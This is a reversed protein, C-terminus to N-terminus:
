RLDIRSNLLINKLKPVRTIALTLRPKSIVKKDKGCKIREIVIDDLFKDFAPDIRVTKTNKSKM